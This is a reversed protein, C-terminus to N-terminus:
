VDSKTTYQEYMLAEYATWKVPLRGKMFSDFDFDFHEIASYFFSRVFSRIFSHFFLWLCIGLLM